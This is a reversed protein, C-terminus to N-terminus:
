RFMVRGGVICQRVVARVVEGLLWDDWWEDWGVVCWSLVGWGVVTGVSVEM